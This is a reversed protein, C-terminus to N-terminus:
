KQLDNVIEEPTLNPNDNRMSKAKSLLQEIWYQMVKDKTGTATQMEEVHKNIGFM